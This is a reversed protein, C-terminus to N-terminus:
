QSLIPCETIIHVKPCEPNDSCMSCTSSYKSMIIQSGAVGSDIIIEEAGPAGPSQTLILIIHNTVKNRIIQQVYQIYHKNIYNYM